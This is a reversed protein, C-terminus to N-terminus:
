VAQKLVSIISREFGCADFYKSCSQPQYFTMNTLECASKVYSIADIQPTCTIGIIHPGAAVKWKTKCLHLSQILNKMSDLKSNYIPHVFTKSALEIDASGIKEKVLLKEYAAIMKNPTLKTNSDFMDGICSSPKFESEVITGFIKNWKSIM